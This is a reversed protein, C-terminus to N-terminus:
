EPFRNWELWYFGFTEMLKMFRDFGVPKVLYSGAGNQYAKRLDAPASSTSLVIVPIAKLSEDKKIRRLLDIGDIKPLRLDLLILDPLPQAPDNARTRRDQLYDLAAQGDSALILRNAVHCEALSRRVIEAHAPEDEVFLIVISQEQSV